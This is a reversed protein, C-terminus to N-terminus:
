RFCFGQNSNEFGDKQEERDGENLELVDIAHPIGPSANVEPSNPPASPSINYLEKYRDYNERERMAAVFELRANELREMFGNIDEQADRVPEAAAAALQIEPEAAVMMEVEVWEDVLPIVNAVANRRKFM